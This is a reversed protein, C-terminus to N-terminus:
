LISHRLFKSDSPRISFVTYPIEDPNTVNGRVKILDMSRLAQVAESLTTSDMYTARLLESGRIIGRDVIERLVIKQQDDLQPLTQM